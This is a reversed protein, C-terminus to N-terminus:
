YHQLTPLQKELTKMYVLRKILIAKILAIDNSFNLIFILIDGVIIETHKASCKSIKLFIHRIQMFVYLMFTVLTTNLPSFQITGLLM